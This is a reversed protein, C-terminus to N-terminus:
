SSRTSGTPDFPFPRYNLEKETKSGQFMGCDILVQGADTELRFCSGTVSRAAGHFTLRPDPMPSEPKTFPRRDTVARPCLHRAGAGLSPLGRPAGIAAAAGPRQRAASLWDGMGAVVLRAETTPRGHTPAWMIRAPPATVSATTAARTAGPESLIGGNHGGKTLVFTLDCDTFLATKYVSRWPAIHDSETAVVFMPVAIDKLAIV